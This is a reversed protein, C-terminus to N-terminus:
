TCPSKSDSSRIEAEDKSPNELPRYAILSESIVILVVFGGTGAELDFFDEVRTSFHRSSAFNSRTGDTSHM